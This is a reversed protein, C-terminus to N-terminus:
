GGSESYNQWCVTQMTDSLIIADKGAGGSKETAGSREDGTSGDQSDRRGDSGPQAQAFAIRQKGAAQIFLFFHAAL